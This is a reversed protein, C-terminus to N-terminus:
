GPPMVLSQIVARGDRVRVEAYTERAVDAERFRREVEPARHESMYYRDFPLQVRTVGDHEHQLRVPLWDGDVPPATQPTGLQAHGEASVTLPAFLPGGDKPWPLDSLALREAEFDLRVYRGRFPDAPDVPATRFRYLSGHQLTQQHQWIAGLPVAWYLAFLVLLLVPQSRRM